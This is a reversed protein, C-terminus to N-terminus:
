VTLAAREPSERTPTPGVLDAREARPHGVRSKIVFHDRNPKLETVTVIM